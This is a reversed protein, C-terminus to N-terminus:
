AMASACRLADDFTDFVEFANRLGAISLARAMVGQVGGLLLRMGREECRHMVDVLENLGISDCFGVEVLDIILFPKASIDFLRDLHERLFLVAGADLEGDLRVILANEALGSSVVLTSKGAVESSM